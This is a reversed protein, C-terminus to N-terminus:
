ADSADPRRLMTTMRYDKTPGTVSWAISWRGAQARDAIQGRYVDAGCLHEVSEGPAWPHFDRGDEFTVFWGDDRRELYLVRSVPIEQGRWSLTGTESWRIRQEETSLKARGDVTSREASRHDDIVRHFEWTGLLVQPDDLGGAAM